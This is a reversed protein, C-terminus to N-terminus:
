ANSSLLTFVADSHSLRQFGGFTEFRDQVLLDTRVFPTPGPSCDAGLERCVGLLFSLVYYRELLGPM